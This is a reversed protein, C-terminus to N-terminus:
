GLIRNVAYYLLIAAHRLHFVSDFTAHTRPLLLSRLVTTAAVRITSGRGGAPLVGAAPHRARLLKYYTERRVNPFGGAHIRSYVHVIRIIIYHTRDHTHTSDDRNVHAYSMM